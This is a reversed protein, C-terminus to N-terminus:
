PQDAEAQLIARLGERYTPCALEVGMSAAEELMSCAKDLSAKPSGAYKMQLLGITFPRTM